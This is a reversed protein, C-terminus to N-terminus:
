TQASSLARTCFKFTLNIVHNAPLRVVFTSGIYEQRPSIPYQSPNAPFIASVTVLLQNQLSFCAQTIASLKIFLPTIKQSLLSNCAAFAYIISAISSIASSAAAPPLTPHPNLHNQFLFPLKQAAKKTPTPTALYIAIGLLALSACFLLALLTSPSIQRM